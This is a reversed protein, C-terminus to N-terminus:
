VAMILTGAMGHVAYGQTLSVGIRAGPVQRAIHYNEFNDAINRFRLPGPV